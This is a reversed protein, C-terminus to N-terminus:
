REKENIHTRDGRKELAASFNQIVTTDFAGGTSKYNEEMLHALETKVKFIAQSSTLSGDRIKKFLDEFQATSGFAGDDLNVSRLFAKFEQAAGSATRKFRELEEELAAFGSGSKIRSLEEELNEVEGRAEMLSSRLDDVTQRESKLQNKLSEIESKGEIVVQNHIVVDRKSM